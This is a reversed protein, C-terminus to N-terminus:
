DRNGCPSKEKYAIYVGPSERLLIYNDYTMLEEDCSRVNLDDMNIIYYTGEAESRVFDKAPVFVFNNM